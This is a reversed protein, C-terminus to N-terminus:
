YVAINAFTAGSIQIGIRRVDEHANVTVSKNRQNIKHVDRFLLTVVTAIPGVVASAKLSIPM